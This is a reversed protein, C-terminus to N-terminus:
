LAGMATFTVEFESDLFINGQEVDITVEYTVNAGSGEGFESDSARGFEGSVTHVVPKADSPGDGEADNVWLEASSDSTGDHHGKEVIVRISDIADFARSSFDTAAGSVGTVQATVSAGNSLTYRLADLLTATKTVKPSGISDQWADSDFHMSLAQDTISVQAVEDYMVSMSQAASSQITAILLLFSFELALTVARHNTSRRQMKM